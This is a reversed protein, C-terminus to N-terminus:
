RFKVGITTDPKRLPIYQSQSLPLSLSLSSPTTNRSLDGLRSNVLTSDLNRQLQVLLTKSVDRPGAASLTARQQCSSCQFDYSHQTTLHCTCGYVTLKGEEEEEEQSLAELEELLRAATTPLAGQVRGEGEGGGVPRMRRVGPQSSGREERVDGEGGQSVTTSTSSVESHERSLSESDRSPPARHSPPVTSDSQKLIRDALEKGARWSSPTILGPRSPRPPGSHQTPRVSGADATATIRRIKRARGGIGEPGGATDSKGVGVRELNARWQVRHSAHSSSPPKNQARTRVDSSSFGSYSPPPPAVVVKRRKVLNSPDEKRGM